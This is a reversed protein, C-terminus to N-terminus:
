DALACNQSSLKCRIFAATGMMIDHSEVRQIPLLLTNPKNRRASLETRARRFSHIAMVVVFNTEYRWTRM